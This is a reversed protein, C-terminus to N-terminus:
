RKTSPTHITVPLNLRYSALRRRTLQATADRDARNHRDLWSAALEMPGDRERHRLRAECVGGGGGGGAGRGAEAQEATEGTRSYWLERERKPELGSM